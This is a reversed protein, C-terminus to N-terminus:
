LKEPWGMDPPCLTNIWFQGDRLSLRLIGTNPFNVTYAFDHFESMTPRQKNLGENVILLWVAKIFMGHSFVYIREQSVQLLNRILREARYMLDNYSEATPDDRYDPDLMAWYEEKASLRDLETTDAYKAASLYTFEHIFDWQEVPFSYQNGAFPYMTEKTRVYSSYVVLNPKTRKELMSALKNAQRQGLESLPNEQASTTKKGANGMSEAHRILWFEKIIAM